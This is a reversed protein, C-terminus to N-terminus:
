DDYNESVGSGDNDSDSFFGDDGDSVFEDEADDDDEEEEEEEEKEEEEEDSSKDEEDDENPDPIPDDADVNDEEYDDDDVLDQRPQNKNSVIKGVVSIKKDNLTHKKGQVEIFIYDNPKISEVDIDAAIDTANKLVIVELVPVIDGKHQISCEALIGFKNTNVVKAKLISGPAPNCVDAYFQINYQIDGNLSVAILRGISYKYISISSPRIYGHHSCRGEFKAQLHKQLVSEIDKGLYKPNIKVKDTLLSKIFVEEM